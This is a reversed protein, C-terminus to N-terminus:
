ECGEIKPKFQDITRIIKVPQMVVKLKDSKQYIVYNIEVFDRINDCETFYLILFFSLLSFINNFFICLLLHKHGSYIRDM